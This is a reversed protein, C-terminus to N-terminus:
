HNRWALFTLVAPTPRRDPAALDASGAAALNANPDLCTRAAASDTLEVHPTKQQERSM